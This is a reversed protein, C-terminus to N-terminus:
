YDLKEVGPMRELDRKIERITAKFREPDGGGQVLVTGVSRMVSGTDGFVLYISTEKPFITAYAAQVERRLEAGRKEFTKRDLSNFRLLTSFYGATTTSSIARVDALRARLLQEFPLTMRQEIDEASLGPAGVWVSMMNQNVDPFEERALSWYAFLGLLVILAYTLNALVHNQYFRKLM